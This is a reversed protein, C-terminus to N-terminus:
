HDAHSDTSHAPEHASDGHQAHDAEHAEVYELQPADSLYYSMGIDPMLAMPVGCALIITPALLVYKWKGEFKLHMFYLMVCLAKAMAVALVVVILLVKNNFDVVDTVISLGTLVCLTLFILMYNVHAHGQQGAM